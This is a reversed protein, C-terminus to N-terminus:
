YQIMDYSTHTMVFVVYDDSGSFGLDRLVSNVAYKLLYLAIIAYLAV